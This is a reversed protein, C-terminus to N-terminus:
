YIRSLVWSDILWDWDHYKYLKGSSSVTDPTWKWQPCLATVPSNMYSLCMPDLVQTSDGLFVFVSSKWCLQKANSNLPKLRRISWFSSKKFCKSMNRIFHTHFHMFDTTTLSRCYFVGRNTNCTPFYIFIIVQVLQTNSSELVVKGAAEAKKRREM